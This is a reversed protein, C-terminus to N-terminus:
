NLRPFEVWFTSGEGIRSSVGIEGNMMEVIKKTIVLGIGTGEVGTEEADLREFSTFLRAQMDESLGPGTDTVSIRLTQNNASQCDITIVGNESNYKVANSLLNLMIQKFRIRDIKVKNICQEVFEERNNLINNKSLQIKIGRKKALPNM